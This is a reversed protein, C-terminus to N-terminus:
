EEINKTGKKTKSTRKKQKGQELKKEVKTNAYRHRRKM